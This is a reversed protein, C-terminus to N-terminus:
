NDILERFYCEEDFGILVIHSKVLVPRKILSPFQQIIHVASSIDSLAQKESESLKRYTTGQRNILKILSVQTVWLNLLDITPPEKKFNHFNYQLNNHDLWNRAKKVTNCNLIGFLELM